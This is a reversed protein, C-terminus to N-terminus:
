INWIIEKFLAQGVCAARCLGNLEAMTARMCGTM